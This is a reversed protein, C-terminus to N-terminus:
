MNPSIRDWYRYACRFGLSQYLAIAASNRDFVQLYAMRAGRRRAYLLMAELLRRAHGRRRQEAACCVDFLGVLDEDVVALAIAAVGTDASVAGFLPAGPLQRLLEIHRQKRAMSVEDLELMAAFWAEAPLALVSTREPLELHRLDLTMVLSADLVAFGNAALQQDLLLNDAHDLVRFTLPTHWQAFLKRCYEHQETWSRSAAALPTVCNARKPGGGSVRIQWGDRYESYAAPLARFACEEIRRQLESLM